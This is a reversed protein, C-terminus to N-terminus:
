NSLTLALSAARTLRGPLGPRSEWNACFHIGAPVDISQLASWSRDWAPMAARAVSVITAHGGTAVRFEEVARDAIRADTWGVVEPHRAGGLYATYIGRRGFMANNFTVGRTFLTEDFAVQYGLAHPMPDTCHLHVIALPNYTLTRLARAAQPAIHLLLQATAAADGTLIVQDARITERETEIGFARETRHMALVRTDLRVNKAHKAHLARPLAEMGTRFSCAPPTRLKGGRRLARLLMSRKVGIDRLAHKLSLGVIMDAPDSAYLGGYLPGVMNAYMEHGIKRTFYDAVTEDDHAGPTFPELMLRLKGGASILDTRALAGFSRPVDRLRGGRYVLLALDDPALIMNDLLGVDEILARMPAVLRTRQPGWDLVHGDITDSRIVGGARDQAELVVHEVGSGALHHALTLGSIGAGVIAIM